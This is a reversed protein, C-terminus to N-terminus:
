RRSHCLVSLFHRQASGSDGSSSRKAGNSPIVKYNQMSVVRDGMSQTVVDIIEPYEDLIHQFSDYSLTNLDSFTLSQVSATRKKSYILAVEGFYDGSRLVSFRQGNKGIVALRGSSIVYM